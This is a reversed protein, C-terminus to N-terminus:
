YFAIEKLARVGPKFCRKGPARKYIHAKGGFTHRRKGAQLAQQLSANPMAGGSSSGGELPIFDEDENYTAMHM